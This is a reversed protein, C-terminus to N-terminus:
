GLSGCKLQTSSTSNTFRMKPQKSIVKTIQGLTGKHVKSYRQMNVLIRFSHRGMVYVKVLDKQRKHLIHTSYSRQLFLWGTKKLSWGGYELISTSYHVRTLTWNLNLQQLQQHIYICLSPALRGIVSRLSAFRVNKSKERLGTTVKYNEWQDKFFTSNSLLDGKVEMPAPVLINFFFKRFIKM